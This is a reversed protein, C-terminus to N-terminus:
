LNLFLLLAKQVHMRNESQTFIISASSDPLTESVEKGREMPMCHMFVAGPKAHSMLAENVQFGQFAQENEKGEFGMSNWVDTYVADANKVAEEPKSFNYIMDKKISQAQKIISENPQRSKPCCYNITIGLQPALLILSHLINNGDGIYAVTLGDLSGFQEWLSLLDALIQCPHHLASLGNIVPVNAYAAMELLTEDAHTRLMIFDAYGNLVRAMDAPTEQKRTNGVSEIAIGGMSQIAMAFSLRTRFSPKEFIMALSKNLLSQSYLSPARKLAKAKELVHKLEATTLETGTLFHKIKKTSSKTSTESPKTALTEAHHTGTELDFIAQQLNIVFTNTTVESIPDSHISKVLSNKVSSDSM